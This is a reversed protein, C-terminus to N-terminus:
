LITNMIRMYTALVNILGFPMVLYEYHGHRIRFATKWEEGEKMRVLNYAGRLDLKTFIKAGQLRDRLENALPLPYRDKITIENIKRYDICLRKTGDKKPVFLVLSGVPSASARIFGKALNENIYEKLTRLDDALM